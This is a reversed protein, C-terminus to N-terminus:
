NLRPMAAAAAPSKRPTAPVATRLNPARQPSSTGPRWWFAQGYDQRARQEMRRFSTGADRDLMRQLNNWLLRDAALRAYWLTSGPTYNRVFRALERGFNTKEDQAVGSINGGILRVSDDVLGATPGGLMQEYFSRDSRDATAYLFDGLIGAGGGQIFSAGWFRPDTMDRPDKGQVLQKMQLGLAGLVTTGLALSFVYGYRGEAAEQLARIGHMSAMTVPFSKYQWGSRLIEGVVSGRQTKGLMLARERAGPMVVAYDTETLLMDM